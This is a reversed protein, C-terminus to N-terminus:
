CPSPPQYPPILGVVEQGSTVHEVLQAVGGGGGGTQKSQGVLSKYKLIYQAERLKDLLPVNNRFYSVM